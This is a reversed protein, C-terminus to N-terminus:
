RAHCRQAAMILIKRRQMCTANFRFVPMMLRNINQMTIQEYDQLLCGIKGQM